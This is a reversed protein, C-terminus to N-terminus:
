WGKRGGGGGIGGLNRERSVGARRSTRVLRRPRQNSYAGRMGVRRWSPKEGGMMSSIVPM